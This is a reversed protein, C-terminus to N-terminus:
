FETVGLGEAESLIFETSIDSKNDEEQEASLSNSDLKQSGAEPKGTASASPRLGPDANEDIIVTDSNQVDSSHSDTSQIEDEDDTRTTVYGGDEIETKSGLYLLDHLKKRDGAYAATLRLQKEFNLNETEFFAKTLLLQASTFFPYESILDQLDNIQDKQLREPSEILQNLESTRM